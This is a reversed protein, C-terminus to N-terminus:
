GGIYSVSTSVFGLDRGPDFAHRIKGKLFRHKPLVASRKPRRRLAQGPSRRDGQKMDFDVPYYNAHLARGTIINKRPQDSEVPGGLQRTLKRVQKGDILYWSGLGAGDIKVESGDPAEIMQFYAERARVQRRLVRGLPPDRIAIQRSGPGCSAAARTADFDVSLNQRCVTAKVPAKGHDIIEV